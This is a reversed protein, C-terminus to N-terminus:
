KEALRHLAAPEFVARKGHERAALRVMAKAVAEVRIPRWGLLPGALLPRLAGLVVAGLEEGVRREQRDALLLPPRVLYLRPLGLAELAKEMEGKTRMYFNLSSAKAGTSSVVLLRDAGLQQGLRGFALVYDFDVRRFAAKSGATRITTGLCCFLHWAGEGETDDEDLVLPSEAEAEAFAEFDIMHERLAVHDFGLPRRTLM